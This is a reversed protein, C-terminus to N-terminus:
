PNLKLGMGMSIVPQPRRKQVQQPPMPPRQDPRVGQLAAVPLVAPKQNQGIRRTM